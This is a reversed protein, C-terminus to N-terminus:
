HKFFRITHKDRLIFRSYCSPTVGVFQFINMEIVWKFSHCHLVQLFLLPYSALGLCFSICRFLAMSEGKISKCISKDGELFSFTKAKSPQKPKLSIPLANVWKSCKIENM